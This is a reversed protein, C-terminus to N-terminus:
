ESSPRLIFVESPASGSINYQLLPLLRPPNASSRTLARASMFHNRDFM